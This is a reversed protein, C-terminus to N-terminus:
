QLAELVTLSEMQRGLPMDAMGRVGELRVNLEGMHQIVQNDLQNQVVWGFGQHAGVDGADLPRISLGGGPLKRVSRSMEGNFWSTVAVREGNVLIASELGLSVEMGNPLVFGGRKTALEQEPIAALHPFLMTANVSQAAGCLLVMVLMLRKM